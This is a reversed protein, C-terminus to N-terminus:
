PIALVRRGPLCLEAAFFQLHEHRCLCVPPDLLSLASTLSNARGLVVIIKLLHSAINHPMVTLVKLGGYHCAPFRFGVLRPPLHTEVSAVVPNVLITSTSRVRPRIGAGGWRQSVRSARGALPRPLGHCGQRAGSVLVPIRTPDRAM